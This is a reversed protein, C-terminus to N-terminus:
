LTDSMLFQHKSVTLIMFAPFHIVMSAIHLRVADILNYFMYILDHTM